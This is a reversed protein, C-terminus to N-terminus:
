SKNTFMKIKKDNDKEEYTKAFSCCRLIKYKDLQCKLRERKKESNKKKTYSFVFAIDNKTCM